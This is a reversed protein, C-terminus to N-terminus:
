TTQRTVDFDAGLRQAAERAFRQADASRTFMGLPPGHGALRVLWVGAQQSHETVLVVPEFLQEDIRTWRRVLVIAHRFRRRRADIAVSKYGFLLYLGLAAFALFGLGKAASGYPDSDSGAGPAFNAPNFQGATPELGLAAAIGWTGLIIFPVGFLRAPLPLGTEFYHTGRRTFQRNRKFM